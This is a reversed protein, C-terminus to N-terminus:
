SISGADDAKWWGKLTSSSLADPTWPAAVAAGLSGTPSISGTITGTAGPPSATAHLSGVPSMSGVIVGDAAGLFSAHISGTPTISGTIVGNITPLAVPNAFGTGVDATGQYDQAVHLRVAEIAVIRNAERAAQTVM